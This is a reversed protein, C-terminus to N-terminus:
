PAAHHNEPTLYFQLAKDVLDSFAGPPFGHTYNKDHLLLACKAYTEQPLVIHLRVKPNPNRPRPM